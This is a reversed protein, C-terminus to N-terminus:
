GQLGDAIMANLLQVHRNANSESWETDYNLGYPWIHSGGCNIVAASGDWSRLLPLATRWDGAACKRDFAATQGIGLTHSIEHLATRENMYARNSGFRLDGNFNAEATPVGPAYAVRISKTASGLRNYRAAALRMASEIRTYADLQDATPASAKALTWSIAAQTTSLCALAPVLISLKM